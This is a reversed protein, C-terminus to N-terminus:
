GGFVKKVKGLAEVLRDVDEETNYVYFSARTTAQVGLADMLPQACHHGSRVAVGEHDLISAVDHPHAGKLTFSVVGGRRELDRPGYLTISADRGLKDLAYATLDQEHRRVNGMGIGQLYDVAAGLGIAGAIPPTGAEFKHPVDNWRSGTVKVEKIMDGGFHFPEMQELLARRAWLAGIGTPGLMKHGSIAYFDCGLAQVDVPLHPAAQAGDVLCLAGVAHAKAAIAKVDNITGVANSVHGVCVLKTRPTLKRELDAMDLTGEPTIGAYDVEVGHRGLQQWPVFNSHHELLTTLVRDGPKLGLGVTYRVLNIAETAGKTWVVEQPSPANLFGAVKARAGEFAETAEASLEYVARHVNATSHTYYRVVADTVSRPKQSTAASDLYALPKGNTTRALTPFDKKIEVWRARTVTREPM